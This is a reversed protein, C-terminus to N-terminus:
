AWFKGGAGSASTPCGLTAQTNRQVSPELDPLSWAVLAKGRLTPTLVPLDKDEPAQFVDAGHLNVADRGTGLISGEMLCSLDSCAYLGHCQSAPQITM